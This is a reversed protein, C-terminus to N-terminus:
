VWLQQQKDRELVSAKYRSQFDDRYPRENILHERDSDRIEM